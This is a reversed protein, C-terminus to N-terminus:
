NPLGRDPESGGEDGCQHQDPDGHHCFCEAGDVVGDGGDGGGGTGASGEHEAIEAAARQWEIEPSGAGIENQRELCQRDHEHHADQGRQQEVPAHQRRDHAPHGPQQLAREADAACHAQRGGGVDEEAHHFRRQEDPRIQRLEGPAFQKQHHGAAHRPDGAGYQHEIGRQERRQDRIRRRMKDNGGHEARRCGDEYAQDHHRFCSFLASASRQFIGVHLRGGRHVRDDLAGRRSKSSSSLIM